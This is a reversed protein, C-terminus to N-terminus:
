RWLRPIYQHVLHGKFGFFYPNNHIRLMFDLSIEYTLVKLTHYDLMHVISHVQAGNSLGRIIVTNKDYCIHPNTCNKIGVTRNNHM